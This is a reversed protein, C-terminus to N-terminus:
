ISEYVHDKTIFNAYEDRIEYIPKRQFLKIFLRLGHRNKKYYDKSCVFILAKRNWDYYLNDVLHEIKKDKDKLWDIDKYTNHDIWHEERPNWTPDKAEINYCSQCLAHRKIVAPELM